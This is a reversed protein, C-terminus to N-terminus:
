KNCKGSRTLRCFGSKACFESAKCDANSVAVCKGKRAKCQGAQKCKNSIRCDRDVATVCKGAKASCKGYWNCAKSDRCDADSAAHCDAGKPTCLGHWECENSCPKKACGSMAFTLALGIACIFTYVARTVFRTHLM